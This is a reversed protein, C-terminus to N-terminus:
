PSLVPPWVDMLVRLPTIQEVDLSEGAGVAIDICDSGNWWWTNYGWGCWYPSFYPMAYSIDVPPIEPWRGAWYSAHWDYFFKDIDTTVNQNMIVPLNHWAGPYWPPPYEYPPPLAPYVPLPDYMLPHVNSFLVYDIAATTTDIKVCQGILAVLAPKGAETEQYFLDKAGPRHYDFGLNLANRVIDNMAPFPDPDTVPYWNDVDYLLAELLMGNCDINPPLDPSPEPITLIREYPYGLAWPLGRPWSWWFQWWPQYSIDKKLVETSRAYEATVDLSTYRVDGAANIQPGIGIVVYGEVTVGPGFTGLFTINKDLPNNLLLRTLEDCDIRFSDGPALPYPFWEGPAYVPAIDEVPSLVVRKFLEIPYDHPNHILVDTDEQVIPGTAGQWIMGPPLAETCVFKAGYSLVLTPSVGNTAALTESGTAARANSPPAQALSVEGWMGAALSIAALAAASLLVLYLLRKNM